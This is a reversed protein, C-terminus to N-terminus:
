AAFDAMAGTAGFLPQKTDLLVACIGKQALHYAASKETFGTGVIAVDCRINQSLPAFQTQPGSAQWFCAKIPGTGYARREYIRKM